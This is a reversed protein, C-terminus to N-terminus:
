HGLNFLKKLLWRFFLKCDFFFGMHVAYYAESAYQEDATANKGHDVQSLTILGNKSQLYLLKWDKAMKEVEDATRPSVGMFHLNGKMIEILYPLRQFFHKHIFSALTFTKWEYSADSTPLSLVEQKKQDSTILLFLYIPSLLIFFALALGRELWNFFYKTFSPPSTDSLIFQEQINLSTGHELNILSNRDVICQQIELNEGVYSNRCILSNEIRSKNDILSHREVIAQPGVTAGSRIHSHDGIFVPPLIMAGPEIVVGRSIWIGPEIQHSTTPFLLDPREKSIELRNAEVLDTLTQGSLIAKVEKTHFDGILQPLDEIKTEATTQDLENKCIIGWGTWKGQHQFLTVGDQQINIDLPLLDGQAILFPSTDWQKTITKVMLFPHDHEKILHYRIKIGWREGNGLRQEIQEPYHHLICDIEKVGEKIVAEIVHFILPKDTVQLLPSPRYSVLPELEKRFGTAFIIVKMFYIRDFIM